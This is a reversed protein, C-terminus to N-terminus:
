VGDLQTTEKITEKLVGANMGEKGVERVLLGQPTSAPNEAFGGPGMASHQMQKASNGEAGTHMGRPAELAPPLLTLPGLFSRIEPAGNFALM